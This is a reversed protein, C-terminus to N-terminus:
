VLAGGKSGGQLEKFIKQSFIPLFEWFKCLFIIFNKIYKM